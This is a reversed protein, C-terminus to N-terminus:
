KTRGKMEEKEREMAALANRMMAFSPKKSCLDQQEKSTLYPLWRNYSNQLAREEEKGAGPLRKNQQVFSKYKKIFEEKYYKMKEKIEKFIEEEEPTLKNKISNYFHALYKEKYDNNKISPLEYNNRVIFYFLESIKKARDIKSLESQTFNMKFNNFEKIIKDEEETFIIPKGINKLIMRYLSDIIEKKKKNHIELNSELEEQIRGTIKGKIKAYAIALTVEKLDKSKINPLNYNNEKMFKIVEKYTETANQNKTKILENEIKKTYGYEDFLKDLILTTLYLKRSEKLKEIDINPNTNKKHEVKEPEYIPKEKYKKIYDVIKKYSEELVGELGVQEYREIIEEQIQQSQRNTEGITTSILEIEEDKLSDKMIEKIIKSNYKEIQTVEIMDEDEKKLTKIVNNKIPLKLSMIYEIETILQNIDIKELKNKYILKEYITDDETLYSKIKKQQSSTYKSFNNYMEIALYREEENNSFLSPIRYEKSIFDMIKDYSIKYKKNLLEYINKYEKLMKKYEEISLQFLKQEKLLRLKKIRAFMELDIYKYYKKITKEAKYIQFYNAEKSEEIDKISDDLLKYILREKSYKEELEEIKKRIQTSKDIIRMKYIIQNCIENNPDTKLIERARKILERYFNYIVKHHNLNNALDIIVVTKKRQSYSLLRGILQFYLIPSETRRCQFECDVDKIHVGESLINISWLIHPKDKKQAKRFEELTRLNKEKSIGSHVVYEQMEINNFLNRILNMDKKINEKKASFGLYKWDKRIYDKIEEQNYMSELAEKTENDIIKLINELEQKNVIYRKIRRKIIEIKDLSENDYNIYNPIPLIGQLIAEVSDLRSAEVGDFLLDKMNKENDLYRIETASTGIIKKEPYKEKIIKKINNIIRGWEKSGCRHYEDLIFVDYTKVLKEIEEINKYKLLNPYIMSDVHSIYKNSVGLEKTHEYILQETIPYTPAMFMIKKSQHELMYKLLIFSKGTGTAHNITTINHNKLCEILKKYAKENHPLLEIKAM